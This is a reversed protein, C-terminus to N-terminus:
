PVAVYPFESALIVPSQDTNNAIASGLRVQNVDFSWKPSNLSSPLVYDPHEDVIGIVVSGGTQNLNFTAVPPYTLNGHM